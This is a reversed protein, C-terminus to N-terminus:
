IMEWGAVLVTSTTITDTEFNWQEMCTYDKYWGTFKYGERTPTTPPVLRDGVKATVYNKGTSEFAIESGFLSDYIVIEDEFGWTVNVGKDWGNRLGQPCSDQTYRVYVDVSSGTFANFKIEQVTNDVIFASLSTYTSFVGDIQESNSVFYAIINDPNNFIFKGNVWFGSDPSILNVCRLDPSQWFLEHFGNKPVRCSISQITSISNKDFNYHDFPVNIQLEKLETLNVFAKESLWLNHNIVIKKIKKNRFLPYNTSPALYNEKDYGLGSVPRDGITEPVTWVGNVIDRDNVGIIAYCKEKNITVDYVEYGDVMSVPNNSGFLFCGCLSCLSFILVVLMLVVFIKKM